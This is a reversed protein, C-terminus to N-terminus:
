IEQTVLTDAAIKAVTFTVSTGGAENQAATIVGGHGGIIQRCIALGLGTGGAGTKTKKSQVFKDFVAELEDAPIGIGEDKITVALMPHGQGSADGPAPLQGTFGPMIRITKGNPTFKIANSLLNYLVQSIRPGDCIVLTSEESPEVILTLSKQQVLPEVQGAVAGVLAAMDHQQMNYTMKGSELKSLDLLDNLLSLLRAGSEEIRQFYLPLKEPANLQLKETGLSAFSMIAHMPTRLEHSMNALFESKAQNASEAKVKAEELARTREVIDHELTVRYQRMVEEAQATVSVDRLVVTAILSTEIRSLAISAEAVLESGDKRCVTFRRGAGMMRSEEEGSFFGKVLDRHKERLREPLLMELPQGLVEAARYGFIRVAGESFLMIRQSADVSIIAELALNVISEFRLENNRLTQEARKHVIFLAIQDNISEFMKILHENPQEIHLAFFELVALTEGGATVSFACASRLGAALATEKRPFNTEAQLDVLWLPRGSDWVRGPLGITRAFTHDASARLFSEGEFGPQHWSLSHRLLDEKVLWISGVPWNLGGCVAQLIKLAAEECTESTALVATIRHEIALLRQAEKQATIDRLFATFMSRGDVKSEMIAVEMLIEHGTRNRAPLELRRGLITSFGTECFRRLGAEHADRLEPPVILDSLCQGVAEQRDWGFIVRAQKNWEVVYGQNDMVIVADLASEIVHRIRLEGLSALQEADRAAFWEREVKRIALILAGCLPLVTIALGAGILQLTLAITGMVDAQDVRVLIKWPLGIFDPKVALSAFGTIVPVARRRHVEEIWGERRVDSLVASPVGLTRLNTEEQSTSDIFARGNGSLVQYEFKNLLSIQSAALSLGGLVESEMSKASLCSHVVGLFAGARSRAPASFTVTCDPRDPDVNDADTVFVTGTGVSSRFWDTKSVDAGFESRRTTAILRGRQDAFSLSTYIPYVDKFTQLVSSLSEQSMSQEAVLASFVQIDGFREYLMQGFSNAIAHASLELAEGSQRVLHRKVIYPIGLSAALSMAVLVLLGKSLWAYPYSHPSPASPPTTVTPRMSDM